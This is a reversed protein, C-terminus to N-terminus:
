PNITVIFDGEMNPYYIRPYCRKALTIHKVWLASYLYLEELKPNNSLDIEEVSTNGVDLRVLNPFHKLFGYDGIINKRGGYSLLLETTAAAEAFTIIGDHNADCPAFCRALAANRVMSDQNTIIFISDAPIDSAFSQVSTEPPESQSQQAFGATYPLICMAIAITRKM